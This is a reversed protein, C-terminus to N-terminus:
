LRREKWHRLFYHVTRSKLALSYTVQKIRAALNIRSTLYGIDSEFYGATVIKPYLVVTSQNLGKERICFTDATNQIKELSDEVLKRAGVYDVIYSHAGAVHGDVPYKFFSFGSGSCNIDLRKEFSGKSWHYGPFAIHLSHEHMLKITNTIKKKFSSTLVADDELILTYGSKFNSAILQARRHSDACALANRNVSHHIKNHYVYKVRDGINNEIWEDTLLSGETAELFDYPIDLNDLQKSISARRESSAKLNIVLIKLNM